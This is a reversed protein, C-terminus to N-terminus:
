RERPQLWRTAFDTAPVPRGFLFGQFESCGSQRLAALEAPSEVGEAVCRIGLRAAMWLTTEIVVATPPHDTVRCVLSRDLKVKAIPLALLAALSSFGTGFDDVVLPVGLAALGEVEPQDSALPMESTETFEVEIDGPSLAFEGMLSAITSSVTSHIDAFQRPSMNVAIPPPTLGADRWVRIQTAVSRMVFDSLEHIAVSDEIIPLFDAPPILRDGDQWRILAEAGLLHGDADCQPQYVLFLDGNTLARRFRPSFDARHRMQRSMQDQWVQTEGEYRTYALATEGRELLKEASGTGATLGLRCGLTFERGDTGWSRKRFTRHLSAALAVADNEDGGPRIILFHDGAVRAVTDGPGTLLGLASAVQRLVADGAQLGAASNIERFRVLDLHLLAVQAEEASLEELVRRAADRNALGTLPDTWSLEAVRGEARFQETVDQVTGFSRRIRGDPSREGRGREHIMREVGDVRVRYLIDLAEGEVDAREYAIRVTERDEPHVLTLLEDDSPPPETPDLGLIRYYGHSWIAKGTDPHYQWSGVRAFDEIETLM